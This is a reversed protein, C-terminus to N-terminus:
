NTKETSMKGKVILQQFYERLNKYIAEKDYNTRLFNEFETEKNKAAEPNQLYYIIKDKLEESNKYRLAFNEFGNELYFREPIIFAKPFRIIDTMSGSMKTKGYIEGYIQLASIINVPSIVVDSNLMINDYDQQPVKKMFYEIQLYENELKKLANVIKEGYKGNSNGLITLTLKQKLEPAALQLAEVVEWYNKRRADVIGPVTFRMFNKTEQKEAPIKLYPEAPITIAIRNAPFLKEALVFKKISDDLFSFYDIKKLLMKRFYLYRKFIIERVFYSAGKWVNFPNLPIYIHHYPDFLKFANHVRLITISKYHLPAFGDYTNGITNIIVLEHRNIEDNQQLLFKKYQNEHDIIWHFKKVYDNHKVDAFIFQNTFITIEDDGTELIHCLGNLDNSHYDLEIIAIKM